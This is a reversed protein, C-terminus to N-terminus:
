FTAIFGSRTRPEWIAHLKIMPLELVQRIAEPALGANEAAAAMRMTHFNSWSDSNAGIHLAVLGDRQTLALLSQLSENAAGIPVHQADPLEAALMSALEDAGSLVPGSVAIITRAGASSCIHDVLSEPVSTGPWAWMHEIDDIRM